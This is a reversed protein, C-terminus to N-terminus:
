LQYPSECMIAVCSTECDSNLSPQGECTHGRTFPVRDVCLLGQIMPAWIWALVRIIEETESSEGFLSVPLESNEKFNILVLIFIYEIDSCKFFTGLAARIQPERMSLISLRKDLRQQFEELALLDLCMQCHGSIDTKKARIILYKM